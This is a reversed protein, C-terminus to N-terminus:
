RCSKIAYRVVFAGRYKAYQPSGRRGHCTWSHAHARLVYSASCDSASAKSTGVAHEDSWWVTVRKSTRISNFEAFIKLSDMIRESYQQEQFHHIEPRNQTPVVIEMILMGTQFELILSVAKCLQESLELSTQHYRSGHISSRMLFCRWFKVPYAKDFQPRFSKVSSVGSTFQASGTLLRDDILHDRRRCMDDASFLQGNEVGSLCISNFFLM